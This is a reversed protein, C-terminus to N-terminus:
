GGKQSTLSLVQAPRAPEVKEKKELHRSQLSLQLLLKSPTRCGEGRGGVGCLLSGRGPQYGLSCAAGHDPLLSAEEGARDVCLRPWGPGGSSPKPHPPGPNATRLPPVGTGPWVWLPERTDDSGGATPGVETWGGKGPHAAGSRVLDKRLTVSGSGLALARQKQRM